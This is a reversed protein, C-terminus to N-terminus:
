SSQNESAKEKKGSNLYEKLRKWAQELSFPRSSTSSKKDEEIFEKILETQRDTLKTPIQIKL